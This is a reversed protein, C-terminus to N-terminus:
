KWGRAKVERDQKRNIKYIIKDIDAEERVTANIVIDGYSVSDGGGSGGMDSPQTAYKPNGVEYNLADSFMVKGPDFASAAKYATEITDAMVSKSAEEMMYGYQDLGRAGGAIMMKGIEQEFVKSPSHIDAEAKAAEIAARVVAAASAAIANIQSSIGEAIGAACDAGVAVFEAEKEECVMLAGDTVSSGYEAGMAELEPVHEQFAAVMGEVTAAVSEDMVPQAAAVGEAMATLYQEGMALADFQEIASQQGEVISENFLDVFETIQEPTMTAMDMMMQGFQSYGGDMIAKRFAESDVSEPIKAMVAAVNDAFAQSEAMNNRLNSAWDAASTQNERSMAQFGNSVTAVMSDYKSKFQDMTMGTNQLNLAMKDISMGAKDFADSLGKDSYVAEKVDLATERFDLMMDKINPVASQAAKLGNVWLARQTLENERAARQSDDYADVMEQVEEVTMKSLKALADEYDDCGSIFAEVFGKSFVVGAEGFTNSMGFLKDLTGGFAEAHDTADNIEAKMEALNWWEALDQESANAGVEEILRRLDENDAMWEAYQKNLSEDGNKLKQQWEYYEEEYAAAAKAAASKEQYAKKAAKAQELEKEASKKAKSDSKSSKSSSKNAKDVKAQAKAIKADLAALRKEEKAEAKTEARWERYGEKIEANSEKIKQQWEAQEKSYKAAAEQYSALDDFGANKITKVTEYIGGTTVRQHGMASVAPAISGWIADSIEKSAEKFQGVRSRYSAVLSDAAGEVLSGADEIGEALNVGAHYGYVWVGGSPDLASVTRSAMKEAESVPGDSGAGIGIEYGEAFWKGSKKTTKWPSGEGGTSRLGSLAATAVVSGASRARPAGALISAVFGDVLYTGSASWDISEVGEKGAEGNAIAAAQTAGKGNEMSAAFKAIAEDGKVGMEGALSEIEEPAMGTVDSAAQLSADKWEAWQAANNSVMQSLTGSISEATGDFASAVINFQEPTLTALDEASAGADIMSQAFENTSSQSDELARGMTVAGDQVGFLKQELEESTYKANEATGKWFAMADANATQASELERVKTELEHYAVSAGDALVPFDGLWLGIGKDAEALATKAEALQRNNEIQQKYLETYAEQAAQAEANRIWEDTNERLKETSVDLKGVAADLVSFDTGAIENYGEICAQLQQQEDATLSGFTQVKGILGEITATYTELNSSDAQVDGWSDKIETALSAQDELCDRANAAAETLDSMYGSYGNRLGEWFSDGVSQAKAANMGDYLGQTADNATNLDEVYGSISEAVSAFGDSVALGFDGVGQIFSQFADNEAIAVVIDKLERAGNVASDFAEIAYEGIGQLYQQFTDSEAISLLEDAFGAANQMAAQLGESKALGEFIGYLNDAVDLARQFADGAMEGANSMYEKFTEDAAIENLKDRIREAVPIAQKGLDNIGAKCSDFFGEIEGNENLTDIINAVNKAVATKANTMSTNIGGVADRATESFAKMKGSGKQDLEVVKDLFQSTSVKGNNLATRLDEAKAKEGLMSRAVADLYGPASQNIAVWSQMDYKGTTIMQNLQVIAGQVQEAGAGFNIFGDNLAIAVDTSKDLDGLSLALQQTYGVIGDLTTPLGEIGDSMKAISKEASKSSYGLNKMVKPFQNLSDVRSVATDVSSSIVSMAKGFGNALINGAAVTVASCKSQFSALSKSATGMGRTFGSVDATAKASLSYDTM